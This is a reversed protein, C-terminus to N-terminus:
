RAAAGATQEIPGSIELRKGATLQWAIRIGVLLIILGIIGHAPNAMDLFPSALGLLTLTGIARAFTMRPAPAVSASPASSSDPAAGSQVQAQQQTSQHKMHVSLAIPVAALSVAMYTLIVAAIQYRRGGVGRSGLVIAKGVLWGVALSVFGIVLGTALAFVVYLVFGAVAAAVGFSLGRVFAQHSDPPFKQRLSQTCADCAPAGNVRYYAAPLKQGCGKCSLGGAGKSYEATAFQPTGDPTNSNM